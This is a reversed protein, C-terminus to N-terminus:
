RPRSFIEAVHEQWCYWVVVVRAIIGVGERAIRLPQAAAVASSIAPVALFVGAAAIGITLRRAWGRRTWLGAANVALLAAALWFAAPGAVEAGGMLWAGWAFPVRGAAILAAMVALYVAIAASALAILRVGAPSGSEAAEAPPNLELRQM